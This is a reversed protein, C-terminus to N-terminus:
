DNSYVKITEKRTKYFAEKIILAISIGLTVILIAILIYITIKTLENFKLNTAQTQLVIFLGLIILVSTLCAINCASIDELNKWQVEFYPITKRDYLIEELCIECKM